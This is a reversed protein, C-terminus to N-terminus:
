RDPRYGPNAVPGSFAARLRDFEEVSVEALVVSFHDVTAFTAVVAFGSARLAGCRAVRVVRRRAMQAHRGSLAGVDDGPAAFVSVGFFQFAAWTDGVARELVADSLGNAGGRVVLLLDDAPPGARVIGAPPLRLPSSVILGSGVV